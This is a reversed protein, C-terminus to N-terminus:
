CGNSRVESFWVNCQAQVAAIDFKKKLSNEPALWNIITQPVGLDALNIGYRYLFNIFDSSTSGTAEGSLRSATGICAKLGPSVGGPYSSIPPHNTDYQKQMECAIAVGDILAQNSAETPNTLNAVDITHKALSFALHARAPACIRSNSINSIATALGSSVVYSDAGYDAGNIESPSECGAPKALLLSACVTLGGGGGGPNWDGGYGDGSDGTHECTIIDPMYFDMGDVTVKGGSSSKCDMAVASGASAILALSLACLGKWTM